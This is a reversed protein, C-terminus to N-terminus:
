GCNWCNKKLVKCFYYFYYYFYNFWQFFIIAEFFQTLLSIQGISQQRKILFISLNCISDIKRLYLDIRPWERSLQARWCCRVVISNAQLNDNQRAILDLFLNTNRYFKLSLSKSIFCYFHKYYIANITLWTM